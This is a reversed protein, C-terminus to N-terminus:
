HLYNSPPPPPPPPPPPYITYIVALFWRTPPPAPAPAPAPAAAAAPQECHTDLTVGAAALAELTPTANAAKLVPNNYGVGGVGLDDTLVFVIDLPQADLLLGFPLLLLLASPRCM